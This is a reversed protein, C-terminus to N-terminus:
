PRTVAQKVIFQGELLFIEDGSPPVLMLDYKYHGEDETDAILAATDTDSIFLVITGAAGGLTIGGNETTMDQLLTASAWNERIHMKATYGTLDILSGGSDKYTLTRRFPVGRHATFDHEGPTM